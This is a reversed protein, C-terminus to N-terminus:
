NDNGVGSRDTFRLQKPRSASPLRVMFTSGAGLKSEARLEGGHSKVLGLCISLGLGTGKGDKKTTFFPEFLRDLDDSPIGAGTDTVSICVWHDFDASEAAECWTTVRIEGREPMADIANILLNLFVQELENANASLRPLDDSTQTVIRVGDTRLRQRALEIAKELPERVDLLARVGHSPRSYDLLGRAIGGVRDALQVIKNLDDTVKEPLQDRYRSLLLRAKASMITIPNNVEHAINSALEGVAALQGARLMREQEQKQQTIEQALEVIEGVAGDRDRLPATTIRFLREGDGPDHARESTPVSLAIETERVIGDRLTKRAASEEPEANPNVAASFPAQYGFWEEWQDNAWRVRLEPDLVRLGTAITQLANELRRHEAVARRALDELERGDSRVQGALRTVFYATLLLAGWFIGSVCLVWHTQLATHLEHHEGHPVINLTYHPLIESWEGWILLSLMAGAVVAVTYCQARSLLVGAIMVHFVALIYFPNEIGGSFQLMVNLATLDAYVQLQLIHGSVRGHQLLWEVALNFVALAAVTAFLPVILREPLLKAVQVALFIAVSAAVIAVWRMQVFWHSCSEIRRREREAQDVDLLHEEAGPGRVPLPLAIQLITKAILFAVMLGTAVNRVLRLEAIAEHDTGVLSTKELLAVIGFALVILGFVLVGLRILPGNGALMMPEDSSAVPRDEHNPEM